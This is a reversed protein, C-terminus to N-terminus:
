ERYIGTHKFVVEFTKLLIKIDFFFSYNCAYYADNKMKTMSDADNRYYAQNYGTIGPRVKLFVRIEDPYRDIWDPPDPRPGIFSMDGKLVNIVQPLEDISTERLFKGVKTVRSDDKGNYTSGDSTRIDPANVRMSRFKYMKFLKGYRGIRYASYFMPGDDDKKILFFVIVLVLLFFPLIIICCVIDLFRKVIRYM